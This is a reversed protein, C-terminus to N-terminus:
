CHNELIDSLSLVFESVYHVLEDFYVLQDIDDVFKQCISSVATDHEELHNSRCRLRCEVGAVGEARLVETAANALKEILPAVSTACISAIARPRAGQVEMISTELLVTQNKMCAWAGEVKQLHLEANRLKNIAKTVRDVHLHSFPLSLMLGRLFTEQFKVEKELEERCTSRSNLLM